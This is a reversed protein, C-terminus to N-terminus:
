DNGLELRSVVGGDADYFVELGWHYNDPDILSWLAYSKSSGPAELMEWNKAALGALILNTFDIVDM